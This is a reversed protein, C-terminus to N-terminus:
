IDVLVFGGSYDGADTDYPAHFILGRMERPCLVAVEEASLIRTYLRVDDISGM